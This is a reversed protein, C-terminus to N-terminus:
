DINHFGPFLSTIFGFVIMQIEKVIGWWQNGAEPGVVNENANADARNGGENEERVRGEPVADNILPRAAEAPDNDEARVVQMQAQPPAAARQMVSSLWQVFPRLAGTQYLYVMTASFVLLALRQRSGEQHFLFVVAALKLILFLDLQFAIEFRWEIARRQHGPQNQQQQQQQQVAQGQGEGRNEAENSPRATPINYTLPILNNSALGAVHGGAFSHVPVAYVGAGRNTHEEYQLPNSGHVLAPYYLPKMPSANYPYAQFECPGQAKPKLDTDESRKHDSQQQSTSSSSVTEAENAM